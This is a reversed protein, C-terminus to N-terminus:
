LGAVAKVKPDLQDKELSQEDTKEVGEMASDGQLDQGDGALKSSKPPPVVVTMEDEGEKNGNMKAPAEDVMDVDGIGNVGNEIPEGNPHQKEDSGDKSSKKAPQPKGKSAARAPIPKDKSSSGQSNSRPKEGNTSSSSSTDKNSRLNRREAPM